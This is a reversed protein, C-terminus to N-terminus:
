DLIWAQLLEIQKKDVDVAGIFEKTWPVLVTRASRQGESGDTELRVELLSGAGGEFVGDVTGIEQPGATSGCHVLVCQKLDEVYHEGKRLPSAFERPVVIEFGSFAKAGEPSDIGAFKMYLVPNERSGGLETKEVAFKKELNEGGAIGSTKGRLSVEKIHAFHEYEGSTSEVKVKGTLGHPGRIIGVVFREM